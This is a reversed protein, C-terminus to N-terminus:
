LQGARLEAIFPEYAQRIADDAPLNKAIVEKYYDQAIQAQQERNYDRFHKGEERAKNLGAAGDYLYGVTAQAHIAQGLYLSGVKEYQYVHTLEHVVIEINARSHEGSGPLNITHFTAFARGKNIAFIITLLGGEAVRVDDWRIANPGLVSKAAAKEASTLPTAHTLLHTVFEVLEPGGVLDFVRSVLRLIWSGGAKVKEWLWGAFARIGGRALVSIAEPIFTVIGALGDLIAEGLRLLRAPLDRFLNVVWMSLDRFREGIWEAASSIAGGIARGVSKVGEWLDGFFSGQIQHPAKDSVITSIEPPQQKSQQIVHALEHAMLGLGSNNNSTYQGGGFVVNNGVTYARAELAKASDAARADTHIRVRSFDHGFRTEM